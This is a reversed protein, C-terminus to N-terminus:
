NKFSMTQSNWDPLGRGLTDRASTKEESTEPQKKSPGSGKTSQYKQNLTQCKKNGLQLNKISKLKKQHNLTGKFFEWWDRVPSTYNVLVNWADEIEEATWPLRHQTARTFIDSKSVEVEKSDFGKIKVKQVGLLPDAGVPPSEACVTNTNKQEEKKQIAPNGPGSSGPQNERNPLFKKSESIKYKYAQFMGKIRERSRTAYGNSVLEEMASNLYDEGVGLARQLQGHYIKWNKPLSLLYCLVGKAKPSISKDHLMARSIQAYPNEEDHECLEFTPENNPDIPM